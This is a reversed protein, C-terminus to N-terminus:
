FLGYVPAKRATAIHCHWFLPLRNGGGAAKRGSIVTSLVGGSGTPALKSAFATHWDFSIDVSVVGERALGSGCQITTTGPFDDPL